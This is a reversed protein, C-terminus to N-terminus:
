MATHIRREGSRQQGFQVGFCVVANRGTDTAIIELHAYGIDRIESDAMESLRSIVTHRQNVEGVDVLGIASEVLFGDLHYEAIVEQKLM